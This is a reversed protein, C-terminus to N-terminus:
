RPVWEVHIYGSPLPIGPIKEVYNTYLSSKQEKLSSPWSVRNGTGDLLRITPEQIFKPRGEFRAVLVFSEIPAKIPGISTIVQDRDEIRKGPQLDAVSTPFMDPFGWSWEYVITTGAKVGLPFKVGFNIRNQTSGSEEYLDLESEDFYADVLRFSFFSNNDWRRSAPAARLESFPPLVTGKKASPRLGFFHTMNRWQDSQTLLTVRVRVVGYGNEYVTLDKVYQLMKYNIQVEDHKLESFSQIFEKLRGREQHLKERDFDPFNDAELFRILGLENRDVDKEVLGYVGKGCRRADALEYVVAPPPTWQNHDEIKKRRTFIGVVADSEDIKPFIKGLITPSDEPVAWLVEFGCEELLDHFFTRIGEEGPLFSCSLFAKPKM